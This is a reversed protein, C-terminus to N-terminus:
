RLDPLRRDLHQGTVILAATAAVVAGFYSLTGLIGFSIDFTGRLVLYAALTVIVVLGALTGVRSGRSTTTGAGLSAAYDRPQGFAEVGSEGSEALHSSVERLTSRVMQEDQKRQRLEYALAQLYEQTTM